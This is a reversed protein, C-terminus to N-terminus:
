GMGSPDSLRASYSSPGSNVVMRRDHLRNGCLTPRQRDAASRVRRGVAGERGADGPLPQSIAVRFAVKDHESLMEELAVHFDPFFEFTASAWHRLAAAGAPYDPTVFAFHFRIDETCLELAIDANKQNIGEEHWGRVIAKNQESM